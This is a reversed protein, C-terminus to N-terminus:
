LDKPRSKPSEHKTPQEHKPPLTAAPNRLAIARREGAVTLHVSEYRIAGPGGTRDGAVLGKFILVEVDREVDDPNRKRVIAPQTEGESAARLEAVVEDVSRPRDNLNAALSDTSHSEQPHEYLYGLLDEQDVSLKIETHQQEIHGKNQEATSTMNASITLFVVADALFNNGRRKHLGPNVALRHGTSSAIM